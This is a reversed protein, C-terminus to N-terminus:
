CLSVRKNFGHSSLQNLSGPRVEVRGKGFGVNGVVTVVRFFWAEVLFLIMLLGMRQKGREEAADVSEFGREGTEGSRRGVREPVGGRTSNLGM